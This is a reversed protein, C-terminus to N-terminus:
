PNLLPQEQGLEICHMIQHFICDVPVVPIKRSKNVYLLGCRIISSAFGDGYSLICCLVVCELEYFICIM